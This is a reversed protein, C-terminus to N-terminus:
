LRAYLSLIGGPEESAALLVAGAGDGFLISTTRDSWDVLRSM